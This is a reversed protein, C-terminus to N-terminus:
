YGTCFQFHMPDQGRGTWDGGWKWGFERFVNVLSMPMDGRAGMGNTATNLDLAIGWSHTSHKAVTRKARFAYGGGYTKVEKQLGRSLIAAFTAQVTPKLLKHLRLSSVTVNKDWALPITFPLPIAVMNEREWRPDLTGDPRIYNSINGFTAIIESLGNPPKLLHTM